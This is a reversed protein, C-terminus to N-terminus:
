PPGNKACRALETFAQFLSTIKLVSDTGLVESFSVKCQLQFFQFSFDAQVDHVM